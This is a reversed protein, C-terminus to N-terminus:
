STLAEKNMGVGWQIVVSGLYPHNARQLMAPPPALDDTYAM